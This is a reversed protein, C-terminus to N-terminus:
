TSRTPTARRNTRASSTAALVHGLEPQAHRRPRGAHPVGVAARQPPPRRPHRPHQALLQAPLLRRRRRPRARQRVRAAGVGLHAVHLVHLEPHVRPRRAHADGEPPHVGRRPLDGRPAPEQVDAIVWEWFAFPKTHPNDVRFVKVGHGIWHELVDRARRGCRSGTPRRRRGSSSRTSTRTSRRRTRPTASRGTPGASSGSPTTACGPTTPRASSPTTSPSRWAWRRPRRASPSSTTSRASSPRSPTTAARPRRRDGVPERPGVAVAHAHQGPGQPQHPRDPPHAAPLRHRLGDRRHRRAAEDRRRLRGREPPVARVVGLVPRARPRGLPGADRLRTLDIDDPIRAVITPSTTTSAPTSSRACAARTRGCRRRRCRAAARSRAEAGEPALTELLEAGVLLEIELDPEEVAARKHAHDRWTGFRDTWAEIVVEHHGIVEPEFGGEWRDNVVELLPADRWTRQGPGRWRVRAGLHVHGDRLIDASVM